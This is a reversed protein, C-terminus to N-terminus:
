MTVNYNSNASARACEGCAPEMSITHEHVIVGVGEPKMDSFACSRGDCKTRRVM